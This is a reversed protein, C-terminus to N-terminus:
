RRWQLIYVKRQCYEIAEKVKKELGLIVAVKWDEYNTTKAHKLRIEAEIYRCMAIIYQLRASVYLKKDELETAETLQKQGDSYLAAACEGGTKDGCNFQPKCNRALMIEQAGGDYQPTVLTHGNSNSPLSHSCSGLFFFLLIVVISYKM